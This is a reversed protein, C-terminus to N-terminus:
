YQFVVPFENEVRSYYFIVILCCYMGKKDILSEVVTTAQEELLRQVYKKPQGPQQSLAVHLRFKGDLEKAYSKWEEKYLFDWESSRCGYFLDMTAWDKLADPGKLAKV